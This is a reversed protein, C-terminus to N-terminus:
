YLVRFNRDNDILYIENWWHVIRLSLWGNVRGLMPVFSLTYIDLTTSVNNCHQSLARIGKRIWCNFILYDHQCLATTMYFYWEQMLRRREGRYRNYGSFMLANIDCMPVVLFTEMASCYELNCKCCRHQVYCGDKWDCLGWEVLLLVMSVIQLCTIMRMMTFHEFSWHHWGDSLWRIKNRRGM